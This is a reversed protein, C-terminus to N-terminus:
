WSTGTSSIMPPLVCVVPNIWFESPLQSTNQIPSTHYYDDFLNHGNLILITARSGSTVFEVKYMHYQCLSPSPPALATNNPPTSVNQECKQKCTEHMTSANKLSFAWPIRKSAIGKAGLWTTQLSFPLRTTHSWCPFTGVQLNEAFFSVIHCSRRAMKWSEAFFSPPHHSRM